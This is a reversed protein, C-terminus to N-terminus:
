HNTAIIFVPSSMWLLFNLWLAKQIKYEIKKPIAQNIKFYPTSYVPLSTIIRLKTSMVKNVMIMIIINVNM